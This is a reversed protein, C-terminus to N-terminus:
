KIKEDIDKNVPWKGHAENLIEVVHDRGHENFYKSISLTLFKQEIYYPIKTKITISARILFWQTIVCIQDVL